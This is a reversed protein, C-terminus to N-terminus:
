EVLRAYEQVTMFEAGANKARIIVDDLLELARVGLNRVKLRPRIVDAFIYEVLNGARRAAVAGPKADLCENPHFRFVVPKRTKSSELFIIKEILKM